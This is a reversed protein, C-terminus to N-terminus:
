AHFLAFTDSRERVRRARRRHFAPLRLPYGVLGAGAAGPAVVGDSLGGTGSFSIQASGQLWGVGTLQAAANLSVTASGSTYGAPADSGGWSLGWSNLWGKFSLGAGV